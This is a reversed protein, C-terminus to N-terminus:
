YVLFWNNYIDEVFVDINELKWHFLMIYVQIVSYETGAKAKSPIIASGYQRVISNNQLKFVVM